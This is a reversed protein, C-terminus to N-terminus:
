IQEWTKNLEKILPAIGQESKWKWQRYSYRVSLLQLIDNFSIIM